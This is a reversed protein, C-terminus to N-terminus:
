LEKIKLKYIQNIEKVEDITFKRTLYAKAELEDFRKVGIKNILNERYRLLNGSLSTNCYECQLHVNDEDFRVMYHNNANFFHGANEKKAPKKCSICANGKDRKRIYANFTTQAIKLWDSLTMLEKKKEVKEKQMKKEFAKKQYNYACKTSCVQQLPRIPEFKEKCAKCTKLKM